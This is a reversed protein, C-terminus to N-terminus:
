YKRRQRRGPEKLDGAGARHRVDQHHTFLPEFLTELNEPSIGRGTDSLRIHIESEQNRTSAGEILEATIALRGGDPMAELANVTLNRFLQTLRRRDGTLPPLAPEIACEVEVGTPRTVALQRLTGRLIDGCDLVERRAPATEIAGLYGRIADFARSHLEMLDEADLLGPVVTTRFEYDINGRRLLKISQEVADMDVKFRVIVPYRDLPAKVDMAVYDVVRNEMLKQLSRPRSGNTDVKVLYGLSKVKYAFAPLGSHLTPEGGGLCLGNLFGRVKYLHNLVEAEPKLAMGQHNLVIDAENCYPCRFNCGPVIAKACLKGPYDHLSLKQLRVIPFQQRARRQERRFGPM